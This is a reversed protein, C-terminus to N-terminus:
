RCAGSIRVPVRQRLWQSYAARDRSRLAWARWAEAVGISSREPVTLKLRCQRALPDGQLLRLETRFYHLWGDLHAMEDDHLALIDARGTALQIMATWEYHRYPGAVVDGADHVEVLAPGRLAPHAAAAEIVADDTLQRLPWQLGPWAAAIAAAVAVSVIAPMRLTESRMGRVLALAILGVGFGSLLLLRMDWDLVVPVRGALWYPLMGLFVVGIGFGTGWWARWSPRGAVLWLALVAAVPWLGMALAHGYDVANRALQAADLLLDHAGTHAGYAPYLRFQLALAIAGAAVPGAHRLLEPWRRLVGGVRLQGGARSAVLLAPYIPLLALPAEGFLVAAIALLVSLGYLFARVAGSLRDAALFLWLGAFLAAQGIFYQPMAAAMLTQLAPGCVTLVAVLAAEDPAALRGTRLALYVFVAIALTCAAMVGKPGHLAGFWAMPQVISAGGLPRGNAIMHDMVAPADGRLFLVYHAWGDWGPTTVLLYPLLAAGVLALCIALAARAGM